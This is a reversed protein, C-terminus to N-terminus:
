LLLRAFLTVTDTDTQHDPEDRSYKAGFAFYRTIFHNLGVEYTKGSANGWTRDVGATLSTALSFHYEGALSVEDSSDGDGDIRNYKMDLTVATGDVRVNVNKYELTYTTANTDTGVISETEIDGVSFLARSGDGLYRGLTLTRSTRDLLSDIELEDYGAGLVWHSGTIYQLDVAKIDGDRRGIFPYNGALQGYALTVSSARELFAAQNHPRTGHSVEQTYLTGVGYIGDTDIDGQSIRTYGSELFASHSVGTTQQAFSPASLALMALIWADKM